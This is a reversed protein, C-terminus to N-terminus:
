TSKNILYIHNMYFSATLSAFPDCIVSVIFINQQFQLIDFM